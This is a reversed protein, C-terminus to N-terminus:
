EYVFGCNRCKWKIPSEKKFVRGQELNALLKRYRREHYTEVSAVGRFTKAM